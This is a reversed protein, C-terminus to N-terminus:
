TITLAALLRAILPKRYSRWEDEVESLDRPTGNLVHEGDETFDWEEFSEFWASEESSLAGVEDPATSSGPM